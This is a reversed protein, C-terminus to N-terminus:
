SREVRASHSQRRASCSESHSRGQGRRGLYYITLLTAAAAVAEPIQSVADSM